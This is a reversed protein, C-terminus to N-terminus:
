NGTGRYDGFLEEVREPSAGTKMILNDIWSITRADETFTYTNDMYLKWHLFSSGYLKCDREVEEDTLIELYRDMFGHVTETDFGHHYLNATCTLLLDCFEPNTMLCNIVTGLEYKHSIVSNWDATQWTMTFDLDFLAVKWKSTPTEKIYRVNGYVDLNDFYAQVAMWYALSEMDFVEAAYHYHDPNSMGEYKMYNIIPEIATNQTFQRLITVGDKDVGARYSVYTRSYDERWCYIGKYEGNIYLVTYHSALGYLDITEGPIQNCANQGIDYALQDRIMDLRDWVGGRLILSKFSTVPNGDFLPYNVDGGHEADFELKVSKKLGTERSTGGHMELTCVRDFGEMGPQNDFYTVAAEIPDWTAQQYLRRFDVGNCMVSTVPLTHYENIIYSYNSPRGVLAGEKAAIARIVSTEELVIPGEYLTSMETPITGDMTYYILCGEEECTLEVTVNEVDDYVGQPVSAEPGKTTWLGGDTRNEEGPTAQAFYVFGSEGEKHGMSGHAPIGILHVYDVLTGEKDSLYLRDELANLAFPAINKDPLEPYVDEEGACYILYMEGSQLEVEPLRYRDREDEEDSLYYENLLIAHDSINKVEILDYFNVRDVPFWENNRVLVENLILEGTGVCPTLAEKWALFGERTNAYGPTNYPAAECPDGPILSIDTEANEYECFDILQKGPSQIGLTAGAKPLNLGALLYDESLELDKSCLVIAYHDPELLLDAPDGACIETSSDKVVVQCGSLDVTETGYNYIELWDPFSGNTEALTAQNAPMFESIRITYLSLDEPNEEPIEEETVISEEAADAEELASDVSETQTAETTDITEDVKKTDGVCGSLIPLLMSFCLLLALANRNSTRFFKAKM